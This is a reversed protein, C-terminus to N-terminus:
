PQRFNRQTLCGAGRNGPWDCVVTCGPQVRITLDSKLMWRETIRINGGAPCDGIITTRAPLGNLAPANDTQGDAVVGLTPWRTGQPQSLAPTSAAVLAAALAFLRRNM